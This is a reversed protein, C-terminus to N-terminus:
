FAASDAVSHRLLHSCRLRRTLDAELRLAAVSNRKRADPEESLTGRLGSAAVRYRDLAAQYEADLRQCQLCMM